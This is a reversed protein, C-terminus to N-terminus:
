FTTINWFFTIYIKIKFKSLNIIEEVVCLFLICTKVTQKQVHRKIRTFYPHTKMRFPVKFPKVQDGLFEITGEKSSRNINGGVLLKM